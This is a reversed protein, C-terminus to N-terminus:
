LNIWSSLIEQQTIQSWRALIVVADVIDFSDSNKTIMLNDFMSSARKKLIGFIRRDLPQWEDTQGAPIFTLGIELNAAVTKVNEARHSSHIFGM